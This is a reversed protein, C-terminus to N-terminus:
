HSRTWIVDSPNGFSVKDVDDPIPIDYHFRAERLGPRTIGARVILVICRDKQYSRASKIALMGGLLRGDISLSPRGGVNVETLSVEQLSRKSLVSSYLCFATISVVVIAVIASLLYAFIKM